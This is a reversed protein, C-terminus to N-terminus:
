ASSAPAGIVETIWAVLRKEMVLLAKSAYPDVNPGSTATLSAPLSLSLHIQNSPFRKALRQAMPLAMDGAGQRFVPTATAPISGRSPMAVAWEQALTRKPEEEAREAAGAWVFLTDTLRTLHFTFAPAGPFPPTLATHHTTIQPELSM